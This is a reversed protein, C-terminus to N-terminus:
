SPLAIRYLRAANGAFIAARDASPLGGLLASYARVLRGYDCTAKDVPFNSEFLCREPGFCAILHAIWPQLAEALAAETWREMSKARRLADVVGGPVCFGGIKVHVNACSALRAVAQRWEAGDADRALPTAAHGLIIACDPVARALDALAPLQAPYIWTEFALDAEALLRLADIFRPDALMDPRTALVPYNLAPDEDWAASRRIARLRGQGAEVHAAIIEDFPADVLPDAHAVIAAAIEVGGATRRHSAAAFRTEGVSRFGPAMAPDYATNCEVFVSARIAGGAEAADALFDEALYAHVHFGGAAEWLHHHSDIIPALAADEMIAL